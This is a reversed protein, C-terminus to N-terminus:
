KVIKHNAVSIEFLQTVCYFLFMLCYIFCLHSLDKFAAQLKLLPGLVWQATIPIPM